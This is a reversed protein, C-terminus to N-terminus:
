INLFASRQLAMDALEEHNVVKVREPDLVLIFLVVSHIPLLLKMWLSRTAVLQFAM